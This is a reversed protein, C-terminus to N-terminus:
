SRKYYSDILFATTILQNCLLYIFLYINWIIIYHMLGIRLELEYNMTLTTGAGSARVPPDLVSKGPRGTKQERASVEEVDKREEWLEALAAKERAEEGRRRRQSDLRTWDVGTVREIGGWAIAGMVCSVTSPRLSMMWLSSDRTASRSPRRTCPPLSDLVGEMESCTRMM